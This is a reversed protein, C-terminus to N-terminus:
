FFWTTNTNKKKEIKHYQELSSCRYTYKVLKAINLNHFYFIKFVREYQLCIKAFLIKTKPSKEEFVHLKCCLMEKEFYTEFFPSFESNFFDFLQVSPNFITM